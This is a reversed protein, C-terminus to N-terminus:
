EFISNEGRGLLLVQQPVFRLVQRVLEAGISGGAGTVLVREGQLYSAISGLDVRVPPRRLLDEPAVDRVPGGRADGPPQFAAFGPTTRLRVPLGECLSVIRRIQAGSASPIAIIVEQICRSRVVTEIAEISGLVPAGHILLGHKAEDDDLFGVLRYQLE